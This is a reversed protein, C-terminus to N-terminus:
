QLVKLISVVGRWCWLIIVIGDPREIFVALVVDVGRQVVVALVDGALVDDTATISVIVEPTGLHIVADDDGVAFFVGFRSMQTRSM